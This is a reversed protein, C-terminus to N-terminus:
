LILGEYQWLTDISDGKVSLTIELYNEFAAKGEGHERDKLGYQDVQARAMTLQESRGGSDLTLHKM